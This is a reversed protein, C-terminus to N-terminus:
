SSISEYIEGELEFTLVECNKSSKGKCVKDKPMGKFYDRIVQIVGGHTVILVTEYPKQKLEQFFSDLRDWIECLPEVGDMREKKSYKGYKRKNYDRQSTGEFIGLDREILREDIRISCPLHLLFATEKARVLPSTYIMDIPLDGLEEGLEIAQKKGINNLPIDTRGQLLHALNYDTVGHRVIFLKM